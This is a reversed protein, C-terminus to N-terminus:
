DILAVILADTREMHLLDSFVTFYVTLPLDFNCFISYLYVSFLICTISMVRLYRMESYLHLCFYQSNCLCVSNYYSLCICVIAFSL